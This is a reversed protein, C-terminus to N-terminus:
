NRRAWGLEDRVSPGIVRVGSELLRGAQDVAPAIQRQGGGIAQQLTEGTSVRGILYGAIFIIISNM